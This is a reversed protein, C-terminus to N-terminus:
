PIDEYTVRDYDSGRDLIQLLRVRRPHDSYLNLPRDIKFWGNPIIM